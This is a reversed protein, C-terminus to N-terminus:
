SKPHAKNQRMVANIKRNKMEDYIMKALYHVNASRAGKSNSFVVVGIKRSRNIIVSSRCKGVGGIHWLQNSKKYTHWGICSVTNSKRSIARECIEHAKTIYEEDSEIQHAVYKLMDSVNSSLGGSAIYPNNSEWKWLDIDIGKDASYHSSTAESVTVCTNKMGLENQVFDEILECFSRGSVRAAVLGLIAFSFDSYSYGHDKKKKRKGLARMVAKDTCRAYINRRTYGYRLFAPVTIESPTLHGYGATHTLLEYITPYNGDPLDLYSVVSDDLSIKKKCALSIILHATVTKSISGIGYMLNEPNESNSYVYTKGSNYFGVTLLQKKSLSLYKEISKTVKHRM